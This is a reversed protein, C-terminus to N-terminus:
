AGCGRVDLRGVCGIGGGRWQHDISECDNARIHREYHAVVTHLTRFRRIDADHFRGADGMPALVLLDVDAENIDVVCTRACISDRHQILVLVGDDGSIRREALAGIGGDQEAGVKRNGTRRGDTQTIDPGRSYAPCTRRDRLAANVDGISECSARRVQRCVTEM